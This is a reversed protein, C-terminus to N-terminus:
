QRHREYIPLVTPLLANLDDIRTQNSPHTSMFELPAKGGSAAAMRAWFKAAERPDYGAEAMLHAGIEDAASEDGRSFPLAVGYQYAGGLASVALKSTETAEEGGLALMVAKLGFEAVASNSVRAGGHMAYAHAVEHGMVVAVGTEDGCIPLIGTYFAVKGGPLAFANVTDPAELVKFEWAFPERGEAKMREDAVAAIRRGVRGVLAIDESNTSLTAEGLIQEYGQLGMDNLQGEPFFQLTRRGTIPETACGSFLALSVGFWVVGVRRVVRSWPRLWEQKMTSEAERTIRDENGPDYRPKVVPYVVLRVSGARCLGPQWNVEGTTGM